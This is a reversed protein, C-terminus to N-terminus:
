SSGEVAVGHRWRDVSNFKNPDQVQIPAQPVFPVSPPMMLMMSPPPAFAMSNAMQAQFIQQQQQQAQVQAFMQFQSKRIQAPHMSLPRDDENDDGGTSLGSFGSLLSVGTPLRSARIGLPTDDDDEDAGAKRISPDSHPSAPNDFDISPISVKPKDLLSSLPIDEDSDGPEIRPVSLKHSARHLAMSLPLDEDSDDGSMLHNLAYSSDVASTRVPKKEDDSVWQDVVEDLPAARGPAAESASSEYDSDNDTPVPATRRRSTVVAIDPLSLSPNTERQTSTPGNPSIPSLSPEVRKYQEAAFGDKDKGKGKGKTKKKNKKLKEEEDERKKREEAEAKEQAEIEKLKAMERGWITDVGFVSRTQTLKPERIGTEAIQGAGDIALLPQSNRSGRRALSAGALPPEARNVGPTGLQLTAPDIFTSSRKIGDRDMMSPRQDGTFVRRKGRMEAKRAELDDILSRGFLKGPPRSSKTEEALPLTNPVIPPQEEEKVETLEITVKEGEEQARRLKGDIDNYAVDRQGDVVLNNRFLLQSTSLSLRPNPTFSNAAIPVNDSTPPVLMSLRSTRAGPPMPRGDTSDLFGDRTPKGASLPVASVGQLPSPMVLVKPRMLDLRSYRREHVAYDDGYASQYDDDLIDRTRFSTSSLRRDRVSKVDLASARSAARPALYNEDDDNYALQPGTSLRTANSLTRAHAVTKPDFRSARSPPPPPVSFPNPEDSRGPGLGESLADIRSVPRSIVSTNVGSEGSMPVSSPFPITDRKKDYSTLSHLPPRIPLNEILPHSSTRQREGPRELDVGEGIGLPSSITNRRGDPRSDLFAGGEGFEALPMSMSRSHAPQSGGPRPGIGVTSAQRTNPLTDSKAKGKAARSSQGAKKDPILSDLGWSALDVELDEEPEEEEDGGFPNHLMDISAKSRRTFDKDVETPAGTDSPLAIGLYDTSRDAEKTAHINGNANRLRAFIASDYASRQPARPNDPDNDYELLAAALQLRSFSAM